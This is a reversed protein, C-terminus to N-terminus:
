GGKLTSSYYISLVVINIVLVSLGLILGFIDINVYTILVFVTVGLLALRVVYRIVAFRSAKEQTLRLARQLINRLWCFNAVALLGGFLVGTAFKSSVLLFGGLALALTLAISARTLVTFVNNENIKVVTM